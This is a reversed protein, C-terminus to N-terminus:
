KSRHKKWKEVVKARQEPTLIDHFEATSEVVLKRMKTVDKEAGILVSNVARSDFTDSEFQALFVNAVKERTDRYGPVEKVIKDTLKYLREKQESTMDLKSAIKDAGKHMHESSFKHGYGHHGYSHCGIAMVGGIVGVIGAVIAITKFM